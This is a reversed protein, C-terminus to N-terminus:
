IGLGRFGLNMFGGYGEVKLGLARFEYALARISSRGVNGVM